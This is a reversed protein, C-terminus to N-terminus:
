LEDGSSQPKGWFSHSGPDSQAYRVVPGAARRQLKTEEHADECPGSRGAWRGRLDGRSHLSLAAEGLRGLQGGHFPLLVRQATQRVAVQKRCLM